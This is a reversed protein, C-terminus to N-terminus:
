AKLGPNPLGALSLASRGSEQGVWEQVCLGQESVTGNRRCLATLIQKEFAKSAKCKVTGKTVTSNTPWTSPRHIRSLDRNLWKRANHDQVSDRAGLPAHCCHHTATFMQTPKDSGPVTLFDLLVKQRFFTSSERQILEFLSWHSKLPNPWLVETCSKHKQERPLSGQCTVCM